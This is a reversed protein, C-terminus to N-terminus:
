DESLEVMLVAYDSGSIKDIKVSFGPQLEVKQGISLSSAHQQIAQGWIGLEFHKESIAGLYEFQSASLKVWDEENDFAGPLKFHFTQKVKDCGQQLLELQMGNEFWVQEIGDMGKLEWHQSDIKAYSGEFVAM